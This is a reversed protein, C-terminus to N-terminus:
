IRICALFFLLFPFGALQKIIYGRVKAAGSKSFMVILFDKEKIGAEAITEKDKLIKGAKILKSGEAQGLKLEHEIRQKIAEIQFM